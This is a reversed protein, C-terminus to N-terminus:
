VSIPENVINAPVGCSPCKAPSGWSQYWALSHGATTHGDQLKATGDPNFGRTVIDAADEPKCKESVLKQAHLELNHVTRDVDATEM